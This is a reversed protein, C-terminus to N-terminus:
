EHVLADKPVDLGLVVAPRAHGNTEGLLRIQRTQRGRLDLFVGTGDTNNVGDILVDQADRLSLVPGVLPTIRVNRLRLRSAATCQLGADANLTVDEFSVDRLAADTCGTLRAAVKASRCTVGRFAIDGLVPPKSGGGQGAGSGGSPSADDCTMEIAAGNIRSMAIDRFLVNAVGGGRGRAARVRIGATPGDFTCSEVLVNRVGGSVEGGVCVGGSGATARIRRVIINETARAERSAEDGNLGASLVVCDGHTHLECDEVVVASSSDVVIGDGSPADPAVVNLRRVTV